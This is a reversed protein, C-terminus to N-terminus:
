QRKKVSGIRNTVAFDVKSNLEKIKGEYWIAELKVEEMLIKPQTYLLIYGRENNAEKDLFRRLGFHKYPGLELCDDVTIAATAMLEM